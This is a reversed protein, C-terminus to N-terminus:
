SLRELVAEFDAPLPSEFRLREGTAPHSFALVAAHLMPRAAALGPRVGGYVPDGVVPHGIAELHVRIQHTRGTELRCELLACRVPTAFARSVEYRTRAPRGSSSVAMRLPDRASRGVPADVLGNPSAPVGWVLTLYRRETSRRALQDVLSAHAAPTRAVMLLGSTGKDLRHVIGPRAPDGTGSLDPFRALLGHVLTGGENGPGPHVVLGHPKDVVIVQEDAYLVRVDVAPDPVPPEHRPAQGLDVAIDQGERLKTKGTVPVGDLLVAGAEVMETVDSRSLGTLLAVVRDLREGALAAPVVERLPEPMQPVPM